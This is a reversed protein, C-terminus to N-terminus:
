RAMRTFYISAFFFFACSQDETQLHLGKAQVLLSLAFTGWVKDLNLKSRYLVHAKSCDIMPLHDCSVRLQDSIIVVACLCLFYCSWSCCHLTVFGRPNILSTRKEHRRSECFTPKLKTCPGTRPGTSNVLSNALLFLHWLFEVERM